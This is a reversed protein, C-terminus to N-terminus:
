CKGALDTGKTGPWSRHRGADIYSAKLSIGYWRAGDARQAGCRARDRGGSGFRSSDRGEVKRESWPAEGGVSFYLIFQAYTGNHAANCLSLRLCSKGRNQVCAFRWFINLPWILAWRCVYQAFMSCGRSNYDIHIVTSVRGLPYLSFIIVNELHSALHCFIKRFERM